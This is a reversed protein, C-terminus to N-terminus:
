KRFIKWLGVLILIRMVFSALVNIIWYSKFNVDPMYILSAGLLFIFLTSAFYFIFSCVFYFAPQQWLSEVITYKFIEMFWIIACAFVFVFELLTLYSDIDMNSKTRKWFFLSLLWCIVFVVLAARLAITYKDKFLIKFFYFLATFELLSYLRFWYDSHIKLVITGIVEYITAIFILWVLPKIAKLDISVVNKKGQEILVFLGPILGMILTIILTTIVM